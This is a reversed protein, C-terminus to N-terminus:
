RHERRRETRPAEAAPSGADGQSTLKVGAGHRYVLEGGYHGTQHVCAVAALAAVASAARLVRNAVPWRDTNAAALALLMALLAAAETRDAWHEHEHLVKKLAPPREIRKEDREGTQAALFCGATGLGILFSAVHAMPGRRVVAAIVATVAGLVILAIPFHVVAPHLPDPLLPM